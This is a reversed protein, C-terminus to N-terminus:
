WEDGLVAGFILFPYGVVLGAGAVPVTVPLTVIKVPIRAEGQINDVASLPYIGAEMIGFGTATSCEGAKVSAKKASACSSFAACLITLFIKTKM